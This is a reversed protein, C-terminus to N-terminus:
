DKTKLWLNATQKLKKLSGSAYYEVKPCSSSKIDFEEQLYKIIAEGSHIFICEKGFYARLAKLLLPFHTCGLIIADVKKIDKFYYKFICEVVEGEFIGEEVLSVLLNASINTINTYGKQKLSNFYSGQSITAETALVLINSDKKLNKSDLALIGSEIVGIIPIKSKEQMYKLAHASATNCAVIIMHPNLSQIFELAQLCFLKITNHDKNGYPVRASDGYYIIEEFLNHELLSKLVSLGGSGSDFLAVRKIKDSM